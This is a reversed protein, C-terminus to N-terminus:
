PLEIGGSGSEACGNLNRPVMQLQNRLPLVRQQSTLQPGGIFLNGTGQRQHARTVRAGARSDAGTRGFIDNGIHEDSPGIVPPCHLDVGGREGLHSEVATVGAQDAAVGTM